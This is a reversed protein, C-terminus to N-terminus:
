IAKLKKPLNQVEKKLGWYDRFLQENLPSNTIDAERLLPELRDRLQRYDDCLELLLKQLNVDKVNFADFFKQFDVYKNVPTLAKTGAKLRSWLQPVGGRHRKAKNLIKELLEPTGILCLACQHVLADYFTKVTKLVTVDVNEVEDLIIIPKKGSDQLAIMHRIILDNKEKETLNHPNKGMTYTSLDLQDILDNLIDKLKHGKSCVVVFATIETNRKLRNVLYSKGDGTPAILMGSRGRLWLKEEIHNIGELFQTTEVKKWYEKQQM